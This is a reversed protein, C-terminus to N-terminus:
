SLSPPPDHAPGREVPAPSAPFASDIAPPVLVGLDALATLVERVARGHAREERCDDWSWECDAVHIALAVAEATGDTWRPDSM